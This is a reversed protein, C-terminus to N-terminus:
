LEWEVQTRAQTALMETRDPLLSNCLTLYELKGVYGCIARSGNEACDFYWFDREEIKRQEWVGRFGKSGLGCAKESTWLLPSGFM